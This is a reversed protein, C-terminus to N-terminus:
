QKGLNCVTDIGHQDDKEGIMMVLKDDDRSNVAEDLAHTSGLDFGRSTV